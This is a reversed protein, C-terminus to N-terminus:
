ITSDIEVITKRKNRFLFNM